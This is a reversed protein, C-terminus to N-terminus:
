YIYNDKGTRTRALKRCFKYIHNFPHPVTFDNGFPLRQGPHISHQKELKRLAVLRLTKKRSNTATLVLNRASAANDNPFSSEIM